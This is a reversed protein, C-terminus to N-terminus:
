AENEKEYEQLYDLVSSFGREKVIPLLVGTPKQGRRKRCKSCNCLGRCPPCVWHEDKLTEEVTEGYRGLLCPGCFQGRVGYCTGSRCITKKDITKQRCQHCASGIKSDYIKGYSKPAVQGQMEVFMNSKSKSNGHKTKLKVLELVGDGPIMIEDSPKVVFSRSPRRPLLRARDNKKKKGEKVRANFTNLIVEPDISLKSVRCSEGNEYSDETDSGESYSADSVSTESSQDNDTEECYKVREPENRTCNQLRLSKSRTSYTRKLPVPKPSVKQSSSKKKEASRETESDASYKETCKKGSIILRQEELENIDRKDQEINRLYEKMHEQFAAINKERLTDHDDEENM